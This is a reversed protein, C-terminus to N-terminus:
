YCSSMITCCRFIDGPLLSFLMLPLRLDLMLTFHCLLLTIAADYRTLMTLLLTFMMRPPLPM